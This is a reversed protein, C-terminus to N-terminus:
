RGQAGEQGTHSYTQYRGNGAWTQEAWILADFSARQADSRMAYRKRGFQCRAGYRQEIKIGWGKRSGFVVINFGRTNLFLNGNESTRWPKRPWNRRRTTLSKMREERARAGEEDKEMNGACVCGCELQAGYAPHQMSHV